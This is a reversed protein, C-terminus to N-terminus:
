QNKKKAGVVSWEHSDKQGKESNRRVQRMFSLVFLNIQKVKWKRL